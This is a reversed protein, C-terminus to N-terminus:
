LPNATATEMEPIATEALVSYRNGDIRFLPKWDGSHSPLIM